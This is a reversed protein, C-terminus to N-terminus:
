IFLKTVAKEIQPTFSKIDENLVFCLKEKNIGDKILYNHLLDAVGIVETLLNVNSNKNESNGKRRLHHQEVALCVAESINGSKRLLQAGHHAHSQFAKSNQSMALAEDSITPDLDYLGIDHLLGSLGVLKVMKSSEFGVENAILCSLFSVYSLHEKVEVLEFFKSIKQDRLGYNKILLVSQNLLDNCVDLKKESIGRKSLTNAISSGFLLLNSVKKINSKNSKVTVSSLRQNLSVYRDYESHPILIEQIGKKEFSELTQDIVPDGANVIKVFRKAGIKIYLNFLSKESFVFEKIPTSIFHSDEKEIEIEKPEETPSVSEWKDVNMKKFCTVLDKYEKPRDINLKFASSKQVTMNIVEPRHNILVLQISPFKREIQELINISNQDVLESSIFVMRITSLERSLIKQGDHLNKKAYLPYNEILKLDSLIKDLFTSDNDIVLLKGYFSTM